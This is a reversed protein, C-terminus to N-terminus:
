GSNKKSIVDEWSFSPEGDGLTLISLDKIDDLDGEMLVSSNPHHEKCLEFIADQITM